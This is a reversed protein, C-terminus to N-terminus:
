SIYLRQVSPKGKGNFSSGREPDFRRPPLGMVQDWGSNFGPKVLNIEDKDDAGNEADWINGTVPTLILDSVIAYGMHTTYGVLFLTVSFV